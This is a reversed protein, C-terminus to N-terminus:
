NGRGYIVVGKLEKEKLRDNAVHNCEAHVSGAVAGEEEVDERVGDRWLLVECALWHLELRNALEFDHALIQM